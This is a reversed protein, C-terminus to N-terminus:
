RARAAFLEIVKPNFAPIDDPKRSTVLNDDVVVEQDVWTAGANVLDTRLSPWSTMTRGRAVDAEVLLWLAHCIAAVPKGADFFDRVFQVATPNMRMTDPNGVGGPLVLAAYDAASVEGVEKDVAFTDGKDYHNFLQIKGSKNSILELDAGAAKLANWPEVLEPTEVMDTALVAIRVGSLVNDAM